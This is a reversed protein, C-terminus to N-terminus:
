LNNKIKKLQNELFVSKLIQNKLIGISIDLILELDNKFIVKSKDNYKNYKKVNNAAIWNCNEKRISRTPFFIINKSEEIIIPSKYSFGTLYKSGEHRGVYSSGYSRCNEEIIKKTKQNIIYSNNDEIVKTKDYLSILALTHSNIKYENM